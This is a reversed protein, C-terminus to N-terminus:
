LFIKGYMDYSQRMQCTLFSRIILFGNEQRGGEWGVGGLMQLGEGM